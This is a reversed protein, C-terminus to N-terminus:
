GSSPDRRGGVWGAVADAFSGLDELRDLFGVVRDDDVEAYQHVLVNRFGVARAVVQALDAPVVGHAGLLEVAHANSEPPGWGEAAVIHHAVDILGEITVIFEYKLGALREPDRRVAEREPARARLYGLHENVRELLRRLRREDVM